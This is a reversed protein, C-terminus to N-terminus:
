VYQQFNFGKFLISKYIINNQTNLTLIKINMTIVATISLFSTAVTRLDRTFQDQDEATLIPGRLPVKWQYPYTRKKLILTGLREGKVNRINQICYFIIVIISFRM